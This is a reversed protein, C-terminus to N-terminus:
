VAMFTVNSHVQSLTLIKTQIENKSIVAEISDNMALYSNDSINIEWSSIYKIYSWNALFTYIQVKCIYCRAVDSDHYMCMFVM